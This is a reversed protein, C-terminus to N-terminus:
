KRWSVVTVKGRETLRRALGGNYRDVMEQHSLYTTVWTPRDHQHREFLVDVIPNSDRATEQGVDDLVLLAVNALRDIEPAEGRGLAHQIAAKGLTIADVFSARLGEHQDFSRRLLACALSTKGSQTPGTFIVNRTHLTGLQAGMHAVHDAGVREALLPEELDAWRYHEPITLYRRALRERKDLAICDVCAHAYYTRRGGFVVTGGSIVRQSPLPACPKGCTCPPVFPKMPDIKKSPEVDIHVKRPDSV